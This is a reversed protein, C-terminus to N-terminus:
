REDQFALRKHAVAALLLITSVPMEPGSLLKAMTFYVAREDFEVRCKWLEWKQGPNCEAICQDSAIDLCVVKGSKTACLTYSSTIPSLWDIEEDLPASIVKYWKNGKAIPRPARLQWDHEFMAAKNVSRVM